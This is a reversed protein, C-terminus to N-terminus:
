PPTIIPFPISATCHTVPEDSPCTYVQSADCFVQSALSDEPPLPVPIEIPADTLDGGVSILFFLIEFMSFPVFIASTSQDLVFLPM